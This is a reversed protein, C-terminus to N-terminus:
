VKVERDFGHGEPTKKLERKRDITNIIKKKGEREMRNLKNGRNGGKGWGGPGGQSKGRGEIEHEKGANRLIKRHRPNPPHRPGPKNNEVKGEGGSSLPGRGWEWDTDNKKGHGRSRCSSGAGGGLAPGKITRAPGERHKANREPNGGPHTRM